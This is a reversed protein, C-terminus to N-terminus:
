WLDRSLNKSLVRVGEETILVNDEIRVGIAEDPLYIGPEVTFVMGPRFAQSYDFSDHVDLGLSHSTAHPYFKRIQRRTARQLLGLHKLTRGMEKEVKVEYERMHVGPKLLELAYDQLHAVAEHVERLRPAPKSTAYTRTIDAAGRFAEAGVDILVQSNNKLRDRNKGYHLTTANAGSAIIPPYAHIAYRNNFSHTLDAELQYEYTGQRIQPKIRQFAEITYDISAQIATLEENSKVSRLHAFPTGLHMFTLGARLRRLRKILQKRAPNPMVGHLSQLATAPLLTAMHRYKKVLSKLLIMGQKHSIVREIGSRKIVEAQNIAGDFVDRVGNPKPLILTEKHGDHVYIMDPEDVGTLYWFNSDQRFPFATDASYQVQTNATVIIPVDDDVLARLRKRNRTFYKKSYPDTM